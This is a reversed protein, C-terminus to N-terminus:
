GSDEDSSSSSRGDEGPMGESVDSESSSCPARCYEKSKTEKETKKRQM